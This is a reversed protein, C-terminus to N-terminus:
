KLTKAVSVDVEDDDAAEGRRQVTRRQDCAIQVYARYQAILIYLLQTLGQTLGQTIQLRSM